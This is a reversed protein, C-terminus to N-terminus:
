INEETLQKAKMFAAKTQELFGTPFSAPIVSVIRGTVTTRQVLNLM